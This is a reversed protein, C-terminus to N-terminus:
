KMLCAHLVARLWHVGQGCIPEGCRTCYVMRRGWQLSNEGICEYYFQVLVRSRGVPRTISARSFLALRAPLESVKVFVGVAMLLLLHAVFFSEKSERVYTSTEQSNMVCWM